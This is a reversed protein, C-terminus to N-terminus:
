APADDAAKHTIFSWRSPRSQIDASPIVFAIEAAAAIEIVGLEKPNTRPIPGM